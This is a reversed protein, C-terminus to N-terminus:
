TVLERVHFATRPSWVRGSHGFGGDVGGCIQCALHGVTKRDNGSSLREAPAHCGAGRGPRQGPNTTQHKQTKRKVRWAFGRGFARLVEVTYWDRHEKQLPGAVLERLDIQDSGYAPAQARPGCQMENILTVM